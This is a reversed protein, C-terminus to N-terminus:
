RQILPVTVTEKIIEQGLTAAALPIAIGPLPTVAALDAMLHQTAAAAGMQLYSVAAATRRHLLTKVAQHRVKNGM